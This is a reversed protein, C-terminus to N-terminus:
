TVDVRGFFVRRAIERSLDLPLADPLANVVDDVLDPRSAVFELWADMAWAFRADDVDFRGGADFLVRLTDKQINEWLECCKELTGTSFTSVNEIGEQMAIADLIGKVTVPQHSVHMFQRDQVVHDLLSLGKSTRMTLLGPTEALMDFFVVKQSNSDLRSLNLSRVAANVCMGPVLDKKHRRAEDMMMCRVSPSAFRCVDECDDKFHEIGFRNLLGRVITDDTPDAHYLASGLRPGDRWPPWCCGAVRAGADVLTWFIDRQSVRQSVVNNVIVNIGWGGPSLQNPDAGCALLTRVSILRKQEDDNRWCCLGICARFLPSGLAFERKERDVGDPHPNKELWARLGAVDGCSSFRYLDNM